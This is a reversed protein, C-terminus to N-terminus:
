RSGAARNKDIVAVLILLFAILRLVFFYPRTEDHPMVVALGIWHLSLTWFAFAFM